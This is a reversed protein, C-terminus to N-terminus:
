KTDINTFVGIRPFSALFQLTLVSVSKSSVENKDNKVGEKM